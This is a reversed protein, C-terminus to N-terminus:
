IFSKVGPYNYTWFDCFLYYAVDTSNWPMNGEYQYESSFINDGNDGDVAVQFRQTDYIHERQTGDIAKARYDAIKVYYEHSIKAQLKGGVFTTGCNYAIAAVVSSALVSLPSFYISLAAAVIGTLYNVATGAEANVTKYEQRETGIQQYYISLSYNHPNAAPDYCTNYNIKGQYVFASSAKSPKSSEISSTTIYNSLPEHHTSTENKVPDTSTIFVTMDDFNNTDTCSITVDIIDILIDEIYYEVHSSGPKPISLYITNVKGEGDIFSTAQIETETNSNSAYVPVIFTLLISFLLICSITKKM